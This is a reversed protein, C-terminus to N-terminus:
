EERAAGLKTGRFRPKIVKLTSMIKPEETLKKVKDRNKMINSKVVSKIVKPLDHHKRFTPAPTESPEPTPTPTPKYTPLIQSESETLPALAPQWFHPKPPTSSAVKTVHFSIIDYLRKTNTFTALANGLKTDNNEFEYVKKEHDTEIKIRAGLKSVRKTPSIKRTGRPLTPDKVFTTKNSSELPYDIRDSPNSNIREEADEIPNALTSRGFYLCTGIFHDRFSFYHGYPCKEMGCAEVMVQM